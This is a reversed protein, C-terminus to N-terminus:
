PSPGPFQVLADARMLYLEGGLSYVERSLPVSKRLMFQDNLRLSHFTFGWFWPLCLGPTHTQVFLRGHWGRERLAGSWDYTPFPLPTPPPPLPYWLNLLGANAQTVERGMGGGRGQCSGQEAGVPFQLLCLLCWRPSTQRGKFILNFGGCKHGSWCLVEWHWGYKM